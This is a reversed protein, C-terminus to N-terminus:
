PQQLAAMVALQDPGPRDPHGIPLALVVQAQDLTYGAAAWAWGEPGTVGVWERLHPNINEPDPWLFYWRNWETPMLTRLWWLAQLDTLNENTATLVAAVANWQLGSVPGSLNPAARHLAAVRRATESFTQRFRSYNAERMLDNLDALTWWSGLLEDILDTPVSSALRLAAQVRFSADSSVVLGSLNKVGARLAWGITAGNVAAAQWM